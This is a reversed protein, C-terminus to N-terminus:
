NLEAIAADFLRRHLVVGRTRDRVRWNAKTRDIYLLVFITVERFHRFHIAPKNLDTTELVFRFEAPINSEHKM